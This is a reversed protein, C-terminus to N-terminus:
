TRRDHKWIRMMTVPNEMIEMDNEGNEASEEGEAGVVGVAESKLDVSEFTIM